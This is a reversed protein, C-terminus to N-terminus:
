FPSHWVSLFNAYAGVELGEPVQIEFTPQQPSTM